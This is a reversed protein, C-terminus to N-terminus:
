IRIGVAERIYDVLSKGMDIPGGAGPIDLILLHEKSFRAKAIWDAAWVAIQETVIILGYEKTRRLRKLEEVAKEPTDVVQGSMGGLAFIAVTERDGLVFVKM